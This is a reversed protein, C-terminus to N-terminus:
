KPLFNELVWLEYNMRLQTIAMRKGSPHMAFGMSLDPFFHLKEGPGGVSPLRWLETGQKLSRTVLVHRGDPAWAIGSIEMSEAEPVRWLELERGSQLDLIGIVYSKTPGDSRFYAFRTGDPSIKMEQTHIGRYIDKEEGTTLDKRRIIFEEGKEPSRVKFFIAKSDPSWNQSPDVAENETAIKALQTVDGSEPDIAFVGFNMNEGTGTVAFRKGDPSLIPRYWYNLKPKQVIEHAQGSAEQRIFLLQERTPEKMVEYYLLKGDSSWGPFLATPYDPEVLSPIGTPKGTREDVQFILSNATGTNEIQFLRGDRTLRLNSTAAINPRLLEPDGQPKGDKVKLLYLDNSGSRDSMFLIGSGDPTWDIIKETKPNQVLVSNVETAVEYVFIDDNLGYAIQRGDPSSYGWDAEKAEAQGIDRITGEPLSIIHRRFTNDRRDYSSALIRRGDPMWSCTYMRRGDQGNNLVQMSSGDLASLRLEGNSKDWWAYAIRKGDPSIVPTGYAYTWEVWSADRTIRKQEGSQLDHLWLDGSDYKTFIVYRGDPSIGLPSDNGAVWIQRRAVETLGSAGSGGSALANLRERAMKTPEAQDAYDRVVSEYAKRAEANGLKEYCLGIHLQAKSAIPRDASFQTVITKYIEIAKELEGKVEELQIAKPFLEEATQAFSQYSVLIMSIAMIITFTKRSNM